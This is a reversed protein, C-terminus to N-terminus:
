LTILGRRVARRIAEARSSVDLKGYISTVHFKVTHESIGLREAIARNSLGLALWDLVDRERHTLAEHVVLADSSVGSQDADEPTEGEGVVRIGAAELAARLEARIAANTAVITV